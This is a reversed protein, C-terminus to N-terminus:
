VAPIRLLQAKVMRTLVHIRVSFMVSSMKEVPLQFANRLKTTAQVLAFRESDEIGDPGNEALADLQRTLRSIDM